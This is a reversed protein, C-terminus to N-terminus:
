RAYRFRGFTRSNMGGERERVISRSDIRKARERTEMRGGGEAAAEEEEEEM